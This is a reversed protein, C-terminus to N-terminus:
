NENINKKKRCSENDGNSIVASMAKKEEGSENESAIM